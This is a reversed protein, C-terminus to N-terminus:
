CYVLDVTGTYGSYLIVSCSWLTLGGIHFGSVLYCYIWLLLPWLLRLTWLGPLQDLLTDFSFFVLECHDVTFTSVLQSSYYVGVFFIRHGNIAYHFWTERTSVQVFNCYLLSFIVRPESLAFYIQVTNRFNNHVVVVHWGDIRVVSINLTAYVCGVACLSCPPSSVHMMHRPFVCGINWTRLAFNWSFRYRLFWSISIFRRGTIEASVFNLIIWRVLDPLCYVHSSQRREM